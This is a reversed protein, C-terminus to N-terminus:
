NPYRVAQAPLCLTGFAFNQSRPTFGLCYRWTTFVLNKTVVDASHTALLGLEESNDLFYNM